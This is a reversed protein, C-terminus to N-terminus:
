KKRRFIFYGLLIGLGISIIIQLWNWNTMYMSGNNGNMMGQGSDCAIFMVLIGIFCLGITIKKTNM